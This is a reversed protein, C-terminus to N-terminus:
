VIMSKRITQGNSLMETKNASRLAENALASVLAKNRSKLIRRPKTALKFLVSVEVKHQLHHRKRYNMM